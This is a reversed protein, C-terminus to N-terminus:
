IKKVSEDLDILPSDIREFNVTDLLHLEGKSAQGLPGKFSEPGSTGLGGDCQEFYHRLTLENGHLQCILWLLPRELDRELHAIMGDKWGRNTATGDAAVALLSEKSDHEALVDM